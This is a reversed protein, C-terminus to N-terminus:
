EDDVVPRAGAAVNTSLGDRFRRRVDVCEQKETRGRGGIGCEVVLEVEIKDAVNSRDRANAEGGIHQRYRWRERSLCHGLQDSVGPGIGALDIHCRGADPAQAMHAALQELRHGTDVHDVDRIAAAEQGIQEASLHLDRKTL